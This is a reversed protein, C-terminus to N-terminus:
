HPPCGAMHLPARSRSAIHGTCAGRTKMGYMHYADVDAVDLYRRPERGADAKREEARNAVTTRGKANQAGALM